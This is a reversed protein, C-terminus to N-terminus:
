LALFAIVTLPTKVSPKILACCDAALAAAMKKALMALPFNWPTILAVVGVPRSHVTWRCNRPTEELERAELAELHQAYYRFFGAAYEVEVQAEPWPKGQ